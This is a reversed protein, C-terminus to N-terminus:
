SGSKNTFAYDFDLLRTSYKIYETYLCQVARV